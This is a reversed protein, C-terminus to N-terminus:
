KTIMFHNILLIKFRDIVIKLAEKRIVLPYKNEKIIM